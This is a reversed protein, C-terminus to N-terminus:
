KSKECGSLSDRRRKLSREGGYRESVHTVIVNCYESLLLYRVSPKGDLVALAKGVLADRTSTDCIDRLKQVRKRYWNWELMPEVCTQFLTADYGRSYCGHLKEIRPNGSLLHLIDYTRDKTYEDHSSWCGSLDLSILSPHTRIADLLQLWQQRSLTGSIIGFYILGPNRRLITVLCNDERGEINVRHLVLEQLHDGFQVQSLFEIYHEHQANRPQQVPGV